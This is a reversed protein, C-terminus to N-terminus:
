SAARRMEPPQWDEVAAVNKRTLASQDTRPPNAFHRLGADIHAADRLFLGIDDYVTNRDNQGRHHPSNRYGSIADRLQAVTYGDLAERIRKRRKEDLKAHPHQWTERWHDFVARVDAPDM